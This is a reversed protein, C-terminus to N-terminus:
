AFVINVGMQVLDSEVEEAPLTEIIPLTITNLFM